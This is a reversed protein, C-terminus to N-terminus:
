QQIKALVGAKAASFSPDLAKLYQQILLTM